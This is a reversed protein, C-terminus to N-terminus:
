QKSIKEGRRSHTRGGEREVRLAETRYSSKTLRLSWIWSAFERTTLTEGWLGEDREGGDCKKRKKERAFDRLKTKPTKKKPKWLTMVGRPAM